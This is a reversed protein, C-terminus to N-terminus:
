RNKIRRKLKTARKSKIKIRRHAMKRQKKKKRGHSTRIRRREYKGEKKILFSWINLLSYM